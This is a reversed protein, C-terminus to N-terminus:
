SRTPARATGPPRAGARRLVAPHRRGLLHAQRARQATRYWYPQAEQATADDGPAAWVRSAGSDLDLVHIAYRGETEATYAIRRGDPSFRPERHDAAGSTLRRTGTGDARALWLPFNGDTYGQFVLHRGDPSFDPETAEQDIGTLRIAEGGRAPVSWVMNLLDLVVTRGDPSLAASANTAQGVVIRRAGDGAEEAGEAAHAM